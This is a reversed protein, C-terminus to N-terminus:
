EVETAPADERARALVIDYVERAPGGLKTPDGALVQAVYHSDRYSTPLLSMHTIIWGKMATSLVPAPDAPTPDTPM